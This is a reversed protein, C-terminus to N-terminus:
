WSSELLMLAHDSADSQIVTVTSKLVMDQPQKMVFVHDLTSITQFKDHPFSKFTPISPDSLHEWKNKMEDIMSQGGNDMFTNQDGGYFILPTKLNVKENYKVDLEKLLNHTEQQCISIANENLWYITKMKLDLQLPMHSNIVWYTSNEKIMQSQKETSYQQQQQQEDAQKRIFQSFILMVGRDEPKSSAFVPPIAWRCFSQLHYTTEKNYMTMRWFSLHDLNQPRLSAIEMNCKNALRQGVVEAPIKSQKTEDWCTRIESICVVDKVIDLNIMSVIQNERQMYRHNESAEDNMANAVNWWAIVTSKKECM